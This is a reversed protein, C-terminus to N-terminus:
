FGYGIRRWVNEVDECLKLFGEDELQACVWSEIAAMREPTPTATYASLDAALDSSSIPSTTASSLTEARWPLSSNISYGISPSPTTYTAGETTQNQQQQQAQRTLTTMISPPPMSISSISSPANNASVSTYYSTLAPATTAIGSSPTVITTTGSHPLAAAPGSATVGSGFMDPILSQNANDNGNRASGISAATGMTHPSPANSGANSTSNITQPLSKKLPSKFPKDTLTKQATPTYTPKVGLSKKGKGLPAITPTKTVKSSQNSNINQKNPGTAPLATRNEKMNTLFPLDRKPPLDDNDTVHNTSFPNARAITPPLPPPPMASPNHVPVPSTSPRGMMSQFVPSDMGNGQGTTSMTSAGSAYQQFRGSHTVPRQSNDVASQWSPTTAPSEVTSLSLGGPQYSPKIPSCVSSAPSANQYNQLNPQHLAPVHLSMSPPGVAPLQTQQQITFPATQSQGVGYGSQSQHFTQFHSQSEFQSQSQKSPPQITASETIPCGADSLISVAKM